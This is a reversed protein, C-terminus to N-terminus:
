EASRLLVSMGECPLAANGNRGYNRRSRDADKKISKNIGKERTRFPAGNDACCGRDGYSMPM